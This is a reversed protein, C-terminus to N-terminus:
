DFSVEEYFWMACGIIIMPYMPTFYRTSFELILSSACVGVGFLYIPLYMIITNKFCKLSYRLNYFMVVIMFGFFCIFTFYYNLNTVVTDHFLYNTYFSHTAVSAYTKYTFLYLNSFGNEKYRSIGEDLFYSHVTSPSYDDSLFLENIISSDEGNWQGKSDLNAGLFISWGSNNSVEYGLRNSLYYGYLSNVILFVFISGFYIYNSKTLFMYILLAIVFIIMLPRFTNCIFMMLGLLLFYKFDSRVKNFLYFVLVLCSNVMIVPCCKSIFVLSFPNILWIALGILGIKKSAMDSLLKYLYFGGVLDFVMNFVIVMIYSTSIKMFMGLGWTYSFLYPFASYYINDIDLGKSILIANNYFTLYDSELNIFDCGLLLIRFLIGLGIIIKINFLRYKILIFSIGLSFLSVYINLIDLFSLLFFILSLIVYSLLFFKKM